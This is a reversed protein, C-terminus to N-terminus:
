VTATLSSPATAESTHQSGRADDLGPTQETDQRLETTPPFIVILTEVDSIRILHLELQGTVHQLHM